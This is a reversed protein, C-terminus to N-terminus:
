RHHQAHQFIAQRQVLRHGSRPHVLGPKGVMHLHLFRGVRAKGLQHRRESRIPCRTTSRLLRQAICM